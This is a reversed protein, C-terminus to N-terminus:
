QGQGRCWAGKGYLDVATAGKGQQYMLKGLRECSLAYIEEAKQRRAGPAARSEDGGAMVQVGTAQQRARHRTVVIL